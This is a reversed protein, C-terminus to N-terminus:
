DVAALFSRLAEAAAPETLMPAHGVAPVEARRMQPARRGMEEATEPALVDSLEGRVLLLPRRGAALRDWLPWLDPAPEPAAGLAQTILPDYDPVPRGDEGERFTRRAFADWHARDAGPFAIANAREAAAAAEAWDAAPAPSATQRLIRELGERAVAPGIDNLVASAVLEPRLAALALTILGGMSTGVFVARALGAARMLAEVDAAYVAPTYDHPRPSWASRGRGRVDVALVRRGGAAVAPAVEEFDRANRTLGHLMVVPLKAPGAAGAYDRASLALGDPASWTREVFSM